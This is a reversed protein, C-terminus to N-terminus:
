ARVPRVPDITKQTDFIKLMHEAANQHAQELPHWSQSEPFGNSRSWNLFTQGQFTTMFPKVYHQLHMVALSTNWRQDFLLDDEYTMLFGIQKELLTDIVTKVYILSTLKDRYETHLNKYYMESIKEDGSPRLTNWPQWFDESEIYDFRDIWTWDIIYFSATDEACSNLVREAIQLNGSGPRACCEYDYNRRKALLAPWTLRSYKGVPQNKVHSPPNDQLDTGFVFSCGFSKIKM